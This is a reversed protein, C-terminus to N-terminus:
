EFALYSAVPQSCLNLVNDVCDFHLLGFDDLLCHLLGNNNRSVHRRCVRDRICVGSRNDLARSASAGILTCASPLFLFSVGKTLRLSSGRRSCRRQHHLPLCLPFVYEQASRGRGRHRVRSSIWPLVRCTSSMRSSIFSTFFPSRCTLSSISPASAVYVGCASARCVVGLRRQHLTSWSQHRHQICRLRLCM